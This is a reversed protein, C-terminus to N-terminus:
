DNARVPKEVQHVDWSKIWGQRSGGAAILKREDPSFTLSHVVDLDKSVELSLGGDTSTMDKIKVVSSCASALYRGTPSFTISVVPGPHKGVVAAIKSAQVDWVVIEGAKGSSVGFAIM